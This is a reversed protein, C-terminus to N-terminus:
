ESVGVLRVVGDEGVQTKRIMRLQKKTMRKLKQPDSIVQYKTNALENEAKRKRKAATAENEVKRKERARELM